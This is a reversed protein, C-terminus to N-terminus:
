YIYFNLRVLGASGLCAPFEVETSYFICFIYFIETSICLYSWSRHDELLSGMAAQFLAQLSGLQAWLFIYYQV